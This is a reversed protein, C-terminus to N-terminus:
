HKIMKQVHVMGQCYVNLMYVGKNLKDGLNAQNEVKGVEILRGTQDFLQYDALGPFNVSFNDKFPNPFIKLMKSDDFDSEVATIVCNGKGVGTSVYGIQDINALGDATISTLQITNIGSKLSLSLDATKYTTFNGTAPFSLTNALTTGNVIVSASRDATGGSAYRFSLIYTGATTANVNFSIKSGIANPVNIYGTGKFGANASEVAGDYSCADTEIESTAVCATKATTGGVCRSCNDLTATGNKVGNCDLCVSEAVGCGCQGAVIKNADNPCLDTKDTVYGTPQTCSSQTSNPDGFGDGDSDKYWTEATCAGLKGVGAYQPVITKIDTTTTTLVNSYTYPISATCNAPYARSQTKSLYNDIRETKGPSDSTTYIAFESFNDYYNKEVRVCTNARIESAKDSDKIYNNFFHGTAGRYMPVRLLVKNYYNHHITVLRDAFLDDDAAGVLGGKHHDHFYCWSITIFGTQGKIDLLGDYKDKDTQTDPNESYIECHDIWINKSTGYISICDGGNISSPTTTGVLTIKLNQIIINNQSSVDLGVGSLFATSGVGIISKDSKIKIQGGGTGNSIAGEVNIIYKITSEAYSKLEAYTKATVTTGGQGGTTGGNQTAYGVLSFNPQANVLNSMFLTIIFTYIRM